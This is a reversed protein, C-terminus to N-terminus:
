TPDQKSTVTPYIVKRLRDLGDYEYNTENGLADRQNIWATSM